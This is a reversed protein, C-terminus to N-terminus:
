NSPRGQSYIEVKHGRRGAMTSPSSVEVPYWSGRNVLEIGDFKADKTSLLLQEISQHMDRIESRQNDNEKTVDKVVVRLERNGTM